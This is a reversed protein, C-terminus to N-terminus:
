IEKMTPEKKWQGRELQEAEKSAEDKNFQMSQGIDFLDHQYRKDPLSSHTKKKTSGDTGHQRINERHFM